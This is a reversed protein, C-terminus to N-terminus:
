WVETRTLIDEQPDRCGITVLSWKKGLGDRSVWIDNKLVTHERVTLYDRSSTVRSEMVGGVLREDDIRVQERSRGGIVFLAGNAVVAAHGRRPSWMNEGKFESEVSPFDSEDCQVDKSRKGDFYDQCVIWEDFTIPTGEKPHGRPWFPPAESGINTQSWTM